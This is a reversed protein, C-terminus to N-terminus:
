RYEWFFALVLGAVILALGWILQSDPRSSM